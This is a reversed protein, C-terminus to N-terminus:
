YRELVRRLTKSGNTTSKHIVRAPRVTQKKVQSSTNKITKKNCSCGM